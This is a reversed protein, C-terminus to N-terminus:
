SRLIKKVVRNGNSAGTFNHLGLKSLALIVSPSAYIPGSTTPPISRPAPFGKHLRTFWVGIGCSQIYQMRASTICYMWLQPIPTQNVLKHHQMTTGSLLLFVRIGIIVWHILGPVVTMDSSHLDYLSIPIEPYVCWVTLWESFKTFGVVPAWVFPTSSKQLQVFLIIRFCPTIDVEVFRKGVYKNFNRQLLLNPSRSRNSIILNLVCQHVIDMTTNCM